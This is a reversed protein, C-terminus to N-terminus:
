LWFMNTINCQWFLHPITEIEENCLACLPSDAIKCSYLFKQTAIQRHLLRTQFWRLRTDVTTKFCKGFIQRWNLNNYINNWKNVATPHTESKVQIQQIFKNGKKLCIWMKSDSEKYGSTLQLKCKELFQKIAKLIGEFMLFNTKNLNPYKEKFESFTMFTGNGNILQHVKLIGEEYWEKVYIVKKDRIININYFICESM